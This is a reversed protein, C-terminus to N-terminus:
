RYKLSMYQYWSSSMKRVSFKFACIISINLKVSATIIYLKYSALIFYENCLFELVVYHFPVVFVEKIWSHILRLCHNELMQVPWTNSLGDLPFDYSTVYIIFYCVLFLTIRQELFLFVFWYIILMFVDVLYINVWVYICKYPCIYYFYPMFLKWSPTIEIECM